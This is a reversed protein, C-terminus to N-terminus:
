LIIFIVVGYIKSICFVRVMSQNLCFVSGYCITCYVITCFYYSAMREIVTSTKRADLYRIAHCAYSFTREKVTATERADLYRTAHCAYSVRRERVTTSERANATFLVISRTETKGTSM